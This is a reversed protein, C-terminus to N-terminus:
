KKQDRLKKLKEHAKKIAEKPPGAHSMKKRLNLTKVVRPLRKFDFLLIADTESEVHAKFTVNAKNLKRKIKTLVAGHTATIVIDCLKSNWM